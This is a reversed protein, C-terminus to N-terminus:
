SEATDLIARLEDASLEELGLLHRRTWGSKKKKTAARRAM